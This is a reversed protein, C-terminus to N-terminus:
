ALSAGAAALARHVIEDPIRLGNPYRPLPKHLYASAFLDLEKSLAMAAIVARDDAAPRPVGARELSAAVWEVTKPYLRDWAGHFLAETTFGLSELEAPRLLTFVQAQDRVSELRDRLTVDQSGKGNGRCQAIVRIGAKELARELAADAATSLREVIATPSQPVPEDMGATPSPPPPAQGPVGGAGGGGQTVGLLSVDINEFGPIMPLLAQAFVAPAIQILEIAKRRRWEDADPMMGTDFGATQVMQEDSLLVKDHLVRATAAEDPRALLNSPDGVIKFRSSDLPGLGEFAELMPRLYAYTLFDVVLDIQPVVHKVIYDTDINYGTWHNVMAKGTIVEPPIDLGRGLRTLAEQRLEQCWKDLQRAVEILKVKDAMDAPGRMVLPVLGAASSRDEVPAKLHELLTQTFIDLGDDGAEEDGEVADTAEDDEPAFSVEWPVYLIGAALRSKAIADVMQTLVAIEAAIQLVRRMPSDARDSFRPDSRWMRAVYTEDALAVPTQGDAKRAYKGSRDARVEETSLFEWYIGAPVGADTEANTGVLYSEGAIGLHLLARRMLEARGGRPGVFYDMVRLARDDETPRWEPKPTPDDETPNPTVLEMVVLQALSGTNAGLNFVYGIEGVGGESSALDYARTQWQQDVQKKGTPAPSDKVKKLASSSIKGALQPQVMAFNGIRKPERAFLRKRAVAPTPPKRAPM